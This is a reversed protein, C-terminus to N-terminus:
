AGVEGTLAWIQGYFNNAAAGNNIDFSMVSGAAVLVPANTGGYGPTGWTGPVNKDSADVATIVGTGDDNIDLTAGTDDEAPAVTVYVLTLDIPATWYLFLDGVAATEDPDVLNFPIVVLREKM